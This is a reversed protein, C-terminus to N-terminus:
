CQPAKACHALEDRLREVFAAPLVSARWSVGISIETTTTSIALVAPTLPGTSVGRLYGQAPRLAAPWSADVGLMSVGACAPHHKAFFRRRQVPSMYKWAREAFALAYLTALYLRGSKIPQTRARVDRALADVGIGDPVAHAIRMSGLFQGFAHVAAAGFDRRINVISAVGIERRRREAAREAAFPALSALLVAIVLDHLTVGAARARARLAATSGADVRVIAFTNRADDPDADRCRYVRKAASALAPLRALAAAFWGPHRRALAAYTPPYLPPRAAAADVAVDLYRSVVVGLLAAASDGGAIFHDYALGLHFGAPAAVAFFRLPAGIPFPRNLEREITAALLADTGESGTTAVIAVDPSAPGGAYNFRRHGDDLEFGALGAITLTDAAARQLRDPALPRAVWAVHVANYPHLERWRLMMRQFLNLEGPHRRRQVHAVVAGDAAPARTTVDDRM